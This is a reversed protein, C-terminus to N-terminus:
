GRMFKRQRYSHRSLLKFLHGKILLFFTNCVTLIIIDLAERGQSIAFAGIHRVIYSEICVYILAYIGRVFINKLVFEASEVVINRGYYQEIYVFEIVASLLFKVIVNLLIDLQLPLNTTILDLLLNVLYVSFMASLILYFYNGTSSDITKKGSNGYIVLSRLSQAIFCYILVDILYYVLGAAYSRGLFGSSKVGEFISSILVFFMLVYSKKLKSFTEKFAYKSCEIFDVIRDAM